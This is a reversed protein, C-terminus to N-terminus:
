GLGEAQEACEICWPTAPDAELRKHFIPEDCQTCYGYDGTEIRKLAAAIRRLEAEARAQTAQAMAQGQMADIRTLRGNRTQDLEVTAAAEERREREAVLREQREVLRKNLAHHDIDDRM